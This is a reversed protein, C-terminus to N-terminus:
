DPRPIVQYLSARPLDWVIHFVSPHARVVALLSDGLASGTRDVLLYRVQHQELWAVFAERPSTRAPLLDYGRREAIVDFMDRQGAAYRDDPRSHNKLWLALREADYNSPRKIPYEGFPSSHAEHVGASADALGRGIYGILYLAATAGLTAPVIGLRARAVYRFLHRATELGYYFLLPVVPVLYRSDGDGSVLMHAAVVLVYLAVYVGAVTIHRRLSLYLGTAVVMVGLAQLLSLGLHGSPWSNLLFWGPALLLGINARIREVLGTLSLPGAGPTWPDLLRFMQLWGAAYGQGM